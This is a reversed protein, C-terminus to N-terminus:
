QSRSSPYIWCCESALNEWPMQGSQALNNYGSTNGKFFYCFLVRECNEASDTLVQELVTKRKMEGNIKKFVGARSKCTEGATVINVFM